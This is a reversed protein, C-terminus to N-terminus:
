VRRELQKRWGRPPPWPVGWEALQSRTWGGKPTRASEIIAAAVHAGTRVKSSRASEADHHRDHCDRCLATLDSLDEHGFREYTRHHVDLRDTANCIRCRHGDRELALQRKAKWEPSQM